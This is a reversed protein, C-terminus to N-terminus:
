MWRHIYINVDITYLYWDRLTTRKRGSHYSNKWLLLELLVAALWSQWSRRRPLEASPRSFPFPPVLVLAPPWIPPPSQAKAMSRKKFMNSTHKVKKLNSISMPKVYVSFACECLDSCSPGHYTFTVVFASCFTKWRWSISQQRLVNWSLVWTPPPKLPRQQAISQLLICPLFRMLRWFM